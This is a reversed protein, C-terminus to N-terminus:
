DIKLFILKQFKSINKLDEDTLNNNSINLTKM